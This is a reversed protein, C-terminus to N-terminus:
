KQTVGNPSSFPNIHKLKKPDFYTFYNKFLELNALPCILGSNKLAHQTNNDKIIRNMSSFEFYSLGDIDEMFIPLLTGLANPQAQAGILLLQNKWQELSVWKIRYGMENFINGLQKYSISTSNKLHFTKNLIPSKLSIHVIAKAAYDVPIMDINATVEPIQEQQIFFSFLQMLMNNESVAGTKSHGTLMGLRYINIPLGKSRAEQLIKESVWKSQAYGGFIQGRKSLGVNENIASHRKIFGSSEFICTSSIYHIPKTKKYVAFKIVERTGNVNSSKLAEYHSIVNINAAGHYITDIRKALESFQNQNLNFLPATIDGLVLVLRKLENQKLELGYKKQNTIMRQKAHEEDTGRVLCYIKTNQLSDLLQRLLFCGLFGTAGTLLISHQRQQLSNFLRFNGLAISNANVLEKVSIGKILNCDLSPKENVLSALKAVTLNQLFRSFSIKFLNNLQMYLEIMNLSTGGLDYFDDDVSFEHIHLVEQFIMIIKHEISYDTMNQPKSSRRSESAPLTSAMSPRKQFVESYSRGCYLQTRPPVLQNEGTGRESHHLKSFLVSYDIKGTQTEPLQDVFIFRSPIMYNPLHLKLFNKLEGSSLKKNKSVVYAVVQKEQYENEDLMIAVLSIDTHQLLTTEIEALEIRFGRLKIFGTARGLLEIDGNPLYKAKDGTDYLRGDGFKNPVFKQATLDPHNLYGRALGYGAVFLLGIEGNSVQQGNDNLIYAQMNSIPKGIAPLNIWKETPGTLTLAIADQFETAGYHNHLQAGTHHFFQRLAPTIKLSEGATIVEKVSMPYRNFNTAVLALQQLATFSLYLKEITHICIFDLLDIPNHRLTEDISFLCGGSCWTSFIEQVSIDFSIPAFQLQRGPSYRHKIHWDILNALSLHEMLIGKPVGTTGSSYLVYALHNLLVQHSLNESPFKDYEHTNEELHIIRCDIKKVLRSILNHTESTVLLCKPKCDDIMHQLRKEPYYSDLAIYACGSKLIGLLAVMLDISRPICLGILDEPQGGLSQIYYALKNARVNLDNYTLEQGSHWLAIANPTCKVQSEFLSVLTRM